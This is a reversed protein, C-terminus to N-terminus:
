LLGRKQFGAVMNKAMGPTVHEVLWEVHAHRAPAPMRAWADMMVAGFKDPDVRKGKSSAVGAAELAQDISLWDANSIITQAAKRRAVENLSALKTMASLSEGLAHANLAAFHHPLGVVIAEFISRYTRVWRPSKGGCDDGTAQDVAARDFTAANAVAELASWRARSARSQPSSPSKRTVREAADRWRDMVFCAREIPRLDRRDLNEAIQLRRLEDPGSASNAREEADIETWGLRIAARLRHRGAIVSWKTAAANGNRRVWIPTLLGEAALRISLCDIATEDILGVYLGADLEGIQAIPLPMVPPRDTM